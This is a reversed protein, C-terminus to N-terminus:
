EQITWLLKQTSFGLSVIKDLIKQKTDEKLTKTRSLIWLYERNPSGVLAYQYNEDLDLIWYDGYFPRFFSVKLKSNTEDTAYAVGSAEKYENDDIMTCANTVKIKNDELIDYTATVNKCGREFFHEYRAIEFWTGLYKNIKVEKVTPLHPYKQNCGTLFFVFLLIPVIRIM